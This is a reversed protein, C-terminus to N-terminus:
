RRNRKKKRNPPPYEEKNKDKERGEIKRSSIRHYVIFAAILVIFGLAIGVGIENIGYGSSGIVPVEPAKGVVIDTYASGSKGAASIQYSLRASVKEKYCQVSVVIEEEEGEVLEFGISKPSSITSNHWVGRYYIGKILLKQPSITLNASGNGTLFLRLKLVQNFEAVKPGREYQLKASGIDIIDFGPRVVKVTIRVTTSPAQIFNINETQMIHRPLGKIHEKVSFVQPSWPLAVLYIQHAVEEGPRLLISMNTTVFRDGMKDFYGTLFLPVNGTNRTRFSNNFEPSITGTSFPEARFEFDPTSLALSAVAREVYIEDDVLTGEPTSIILRWIAGDEGERTGEARSYIGIHFSIMDRFVSSSSLNIYKGYELDYFMGNLYRWRYYTSENKVGRLYGPSYLVVTINESARYLTLNHEVGAVMVKIGSHYQEQCEPIFLSYSNEAAGPGTVLFSLLILSIIALPLPKVTM